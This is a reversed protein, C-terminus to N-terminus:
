APLLETGEVSWYRSLPLSKIAGIAADLSDANVLFWGRQRDAALYGQEIVGSERLEKYRAVEAPILSLDPQELTKTWVMYRM